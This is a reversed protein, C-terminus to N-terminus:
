SGAARAQSGDEARGDGDIDAVPAGVAGDQGLESVVRNEALLPTFTQVRGEQLEDVAAEALPRVEDEGAEGGPRRLVQDTVEDVRTDTHDNAAM